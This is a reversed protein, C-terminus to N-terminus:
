RASDNVEAIGIRKFEFDSNKDVIIQYGDSLVRRTGEDLPLFIWSPDALGYEVEFGELYWVRLSTVAGYFEVQQNIMTGFCSLWNTDSLLKQKQSSLICLDIDSDPKSTGRAYSGILIIAQVSPTETGWQKVANLFENLQEL